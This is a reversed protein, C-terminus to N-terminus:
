NMLLESGSFSQIEFLIYFLQSTRNQQAIM